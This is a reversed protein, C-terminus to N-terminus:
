FNRKQEYKAAIWPMKGEEGSLIIAQGESLVPQM